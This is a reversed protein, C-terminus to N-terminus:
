WYVTVCMDIVVVNEARAWLATPVGNVSPNVQPQIGQGVDRLYEGNTNAASCALLPTDTAPGIRVCVNETTDTEDCHVVKVYRIQNKVAADIEAPVNASSWLNETVNTVTEKWGSSRDIAGQAYRAVQSADNPPFADARGIFLACVALAFFINKHM